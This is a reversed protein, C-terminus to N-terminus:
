NKVRTFNLKFGQDNDGLVNAELQTKSIQKYQIKKPFDHKLNEFSYGDTFEPNLKFSITAGKNQNAVTAQYVWQNDLYLIKLNETIQKQNDRLKYGHGEYTTENIKTWTEFTQKGNVQWTGIIFDLQSESKTCVDAGIIAYAILLISVKM